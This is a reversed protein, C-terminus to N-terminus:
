PLRVLAAAPVAWRLRVGSAAAARRGAADWGCAEGATAAPDTDLVPQLPPADAGEADLTAERTLAGIDGDPELRASALARRSASDL